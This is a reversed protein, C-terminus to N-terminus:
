IRIIYIIDFTIMHTNNERETGETPIMFNLKQQGEGM